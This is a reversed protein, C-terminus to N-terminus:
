LGEKGLTKIKAFISGKQLPYPEPFATKFPYSGKRRYVTFSINGFCPYDFLM